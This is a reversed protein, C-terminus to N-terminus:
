ELEIGFWGDGDSDLEYTMILTLDGGQSMMADGECALKTDNRSVESANRVKLIENEGGFNNTLVKGKAQSALDDCDKESVPVSVSECGTFLWVLLLVMFSALYNKGNINM